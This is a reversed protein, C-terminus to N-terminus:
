LDEIFFPTTNLLANEWIYNEGFHLHKVLEKLISAVVKVNNQTIYSNHEYDMENNTSKIHLVSCSGSNWIAINITSGNKMDIEASFLPVNFTIVMSGDENLLKVLAEKPLEKETQMAIQNIASIFCIIDEQETYLHAGAEILSEEGTQIRIRLCDRSNLSIYHEGTPEFVCGYKSKDSLVCSTLMCLLFLVRM